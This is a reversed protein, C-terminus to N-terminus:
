KKILMQQMNLFTNGLKRITEIKTDGCFIFNERIQKLATTM